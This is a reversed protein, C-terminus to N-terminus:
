ESSWGTDDEDGDLIHEETSACMTKGTGFM